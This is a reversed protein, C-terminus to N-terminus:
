KSNANVLAVGWGEDWNLSVHSAAPDSQLHLLSRYHKVHNVDDIWVIFPLEGMLRRVTQYELLGVGGASDLCFLPRRHAFSPVLTHLLRDPPSLSPDGGLAGELERLYGSVPDPLFDIYIDPDQGREL